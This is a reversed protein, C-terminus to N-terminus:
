ERGWNGAVVAARETSDIEANHAAVIRGATEQTIRDNHHLPIVLSPIPRSPNVHDVPAPAPMVDVIFLGDNMAALYWKKMTM